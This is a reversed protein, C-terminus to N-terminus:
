LSNYNEFPMLLRRIFDSKPHSLVENKTGFQAIEGDIMIALNEALFLADEHNHTVLIKPILLKSFLKKLESAVELRTVQDINSLPEDLLLLKPKIALARALGVRQKQGGSLEKIKKQEYGKLDVLNLMELATKERETKTIGQMKLGFSVNELVNLHLFLGYEQPLYGICRNEIPFDTIDREDLIVKGKKPKIIGLITLLLTTKGSGSPGMLILTEAPGVILSLDKIIIHNDYRAEIHQLLLGTM